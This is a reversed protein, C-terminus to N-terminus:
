REQPSALSVWFMRLMWVLIWSRSRHSTACVAPSFSVVCLRWHCHSILTYLRQLFRSLCSLVLSALFPNRACLGALFPNRALSFFMWTPDISEGQHLWSTPSFPRRLGGRVRKFWWWVKDQFGGDSFDVRSNGESFRGVWVRWSSILVSRISSLSSAPARSTSRVRWLRKRCSSRWWLRVFSRSTLGISTLYTTSKLHSSTATLPTANIACPRSTQCSPSSCPSSHGGGQRAWARSLLGSWVLLSAASARMTSPKRLSTWMRQSRQSCSGRSIRISPLSAMCRTSVIDLAGMGSFRSRQCHWWNCRAPAPSSGVAGAHLCVNATSCSCGDQCFGTAGTLACCPQRAANCCPFVASQICLRDGTVVVQTRSAGPTGTQSRSNRAPPHM